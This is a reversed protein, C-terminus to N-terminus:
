PSPRTLLIVRSDVSLLTTKGRHHLPESWHRHGFIVLPLAPGHTALIEGILDDESGEDPGQHLVLMDPHQALLDGLIRRTDTELNRWPKRPNGSIGSYGAIRLGDVVVSRGHLAHVDPMADFSDPFRAQGHFLDHNGAVGAVWRFRQAFDLWIDQVDGIGGRLTLDPEAHLDGALIIGTAAPPPISEDEGMAALTEALSHSILRRATGPRPATEYHQMDSLVIVAELGSDEPLDAEGRLFPITVPRTRGGGPAASVAHVTRLLTLQTSRIQM